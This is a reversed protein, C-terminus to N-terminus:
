NGAPAASEGQVTGTTVLFALMSELDEASLRGEPFAPMKASGERIQKRAAAATWGLGQINPADGGERHCGGCYDSFAAQGAAVDTSGIPGEYSVPSSAVGGGCGTGMLAILLGTMVSSRVIAKM